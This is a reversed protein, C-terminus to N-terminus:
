HAVAPAEARAPTRRLLFSLGFAVICLASAWLVADHFGAATAAAASRGEESAAVEGRTLITVFLATGAAGGVQQLTTLVASGHSYMQPPLSGLGSTMLPTFMLALSMCLVAYVVIVEGLPSGQDLSSMWLLSGGLVLTAPVVLPKAGLRDFARGVLPSSLGMVLGGPLLVLGTTLTSADKSNQLFLPLLIIAGFLAMMSVGVMAVSITFTREKFVRLDMLPHDGLRLQRWVFAALFVAGVVVPLVPPIPAEGRAEEGLASLGYVMGSFGVAALVVSAVDIPLQHPETVNRVLRIGIALSFLAIPLVLWFMWRWSLENLILGSITPGIAPAVAIVITITGMMQGRREEPVLTMVTTMLLPMMLATGSAQVIRGVLLVEFGPALAAILTGLSFAAMAAIYVQRVHLRQLLYGTVPIVTAMTLLFATTLWQATTAPIDLDDMLHPLAVGMITENLIVVFTAGVLLAILRSHEAPMRGAMM